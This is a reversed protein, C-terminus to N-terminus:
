PLPPALVRPPPLYSLKNPDCMDCLLHPQPYPKPKPKPKHKHKHKRKHTHKHEDKPKPRAWALGSGNCIDSAKASRSQATSITGSLTYALTVGPQPKPPSSESSQM